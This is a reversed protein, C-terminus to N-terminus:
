VDEDLIKVVEVVAQNFGFVMQNSFAADHQLLEVAELIKRREDKRAVVEAQHGDQRGTDYCDCFSNTCGCGGLTM